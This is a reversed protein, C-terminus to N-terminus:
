QWFNAKTIWPHQAEHSLISCFLYYASIAPPSKKVLCVFLFTGWYLFLPLSSCHSLAEGKQTHSDWPSRNVPNAYRLGSTLPFRSNIPKLSSNGSHRKQVQLELTPYKQVCQRGRKRWKSARLSAARHTPSRVECGPSRQLRVPSTRPFARRKACHKATTKKCHKMIKSGPAQHKWEAGLEVFQMAVWSHMSPELTRYYLFRNLKAWCMM